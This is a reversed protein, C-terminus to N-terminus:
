RNELYYKVEHIYKEAKEREDKNVMGSKLQKEFYYVLGEPEIFHKIEELVTEKGKANSAMEILNVLYTRATKLSVSDENSDKKSEKFLEYFYKDMELAAGRKQEISASIVGDSSIVAEDEKLLNADSLIRQKRMEAVYKETPMKPNEIGM